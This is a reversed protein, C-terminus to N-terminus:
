RSLIFLRAPVNMPLFELVGHSPVYARMQQEDDDETMM